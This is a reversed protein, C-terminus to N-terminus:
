IDLRSPVLRRRRESLEHRVGAVGAVTGSLAALVSALVRLFFTDRHALRWGGAIKPGIPTSSSYFVLAGGLGELGYAIRWVRPRATNRVAQVTTGRAPLGAVRRRFSM